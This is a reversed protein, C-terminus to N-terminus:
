PGAWPDQLSVKELVDGCRAEGKWERGVKEVHIRVGLPPWAAVRLGTMGEHTKEFVWRSCTMRRYAHIGLRWVSTLAIAAVGAVIATEILAQGRKNNVSSSM